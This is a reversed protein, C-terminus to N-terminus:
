KVTTLDINSLATKFYAIENGQPPVNLVRLNIKESFLYQLVV